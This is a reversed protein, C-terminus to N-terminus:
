DLITVKVNYRRGWKHCQEVTPFHVDIINGNIAGGTDAAIAVGYGEVEVLTGLPIVSRDVAIAMPNKRLDLGSATYYSAGAEAYSYATSEMYMVKGNNGSPSEPKENSVPKEESEQSSDTDSTAEKSPETSSSPSDAVEKEALVKEQKEATAKEQAEKEQAEKEAAQKEEEAKLRAQEVVKSNAISQLVEQNESLQEQLGSIQSDLDKTETELASQSEELESQTTAVKEQLTQLTETEQNLEDVAAKEANQLTTLAYVGNIFDTFSGTELLVAWKSKEVSSIQLNKLRSAVREKHADIKEESVKIQENTKDITAENKSIKTKIEEVEQYKQNVIQLTDQVEQSITQSQKSIESEKQNLDDLTEAQVVTPLVFQISLLCAALLNKAKM